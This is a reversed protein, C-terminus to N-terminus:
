LYGTFNNRYKENLKSLLKKVESPPINIYESKRGIGYPLASEDLFPLTFSLNSKVIVQKLNVRSNFIDASPITVGIPKSFLAEFLQFPRLGDTLKAVTHYEDEDISLSLTGDRFSLRATSSGEPKSHKPRDDSPLNLEDIIFLGVWHFEDIGPVGRLDNSASEIRLKIFSQRNLTRLIDEQELRSLNKSAVRGNFDYHFSVGKTKGQYELEHLVLNIAEDGSLEGGHM